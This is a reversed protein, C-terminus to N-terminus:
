LHVAQTAIDSSFLCLSTCQRHLLIPPFRMGWLPRCRFGWSVCLSYLHLLFVSHLNIFFPPWMSVQSGQKKSLHMGWMAETSDSRKRSRLNKSSKPVSFSMRKSRLGKFGGVKKKTPSEANEEKKAEAKEEEGADEGAAPERLEKVGGM